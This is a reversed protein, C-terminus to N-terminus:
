FSQRRQLLQFLQAKVNIEKITARGHYWGYEEFVHLTEDTQDKFHGFISEFCETRQM